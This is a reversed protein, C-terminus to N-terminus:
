DQCWLILRIECSTRCPANDVYVEGFLTIITLGVL